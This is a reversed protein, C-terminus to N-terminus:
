PRVLEERPQHVLDECGAASVVVTREVELACTGPLFASIELNIAMGEELPLDSPVSVCDDAIRRGNDPVLIPWDRVELGLGHGTPPDCVVPHEDLASAMQAQVASARVGPAVAAIGAEVAEFIGRYRELVEPEPDALTITAASDSFYGEYVCGFDVCLCADAVLRDPGLTALSLGSVSPAFHDFDAGGAAVEARFRAASDALPLGPGMEAFAAAAAEEGITAAHKLLALEAPTKVMRVLGLLATCDGFWAEPLAEEIGAFAPAAVRNREVGIRGQRLGRDGLGAILAELPTAHAREIRGLLDRQAPELREPEATDLRRHGYLRVDEIWSHLANVALGASAILVPEGEAPLVVYGKMALADSGGPLVMHEALQPDLWSSVGSLYRVNTPSAAVIAGLEAERM